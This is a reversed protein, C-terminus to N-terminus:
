KTSEKNNCRNYFAFVIQVIGALLIVPGFFCWFRTWEEFDNMIGDWDAGGFYEMRINAIHCILYGVSLDFCGGALLGRPADETKSSVWWNVICGAAVLLLGVFIM